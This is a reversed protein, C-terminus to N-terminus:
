EYYEGNPLPSRNAGVSRALVEEFMRSEQRAQEEEEEMVARHNALLEEISRM